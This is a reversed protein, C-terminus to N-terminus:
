QPAPIAADTSRARIKLAQAHGDIMQYSARVDSGPSLQGINAARGDLTVNTSDSVNLRLMQQDSTRVAISDSGTSVLRGQLEQQQTWQANNQLQQQHEQTENQQALAADQQSATGQEHAVEALRRADAQAQDARAQQARSAAEAAALQRQLEIVNRHAQEAKQQEDTARKQSDAAQQFSQTATNQASVTQSAPQDQHGFTACGVALALPALWKINRM